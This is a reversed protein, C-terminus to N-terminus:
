ELLQTIDSFQVCKIFKYDRKKDGLGWRTGVGVGFRWLYARPGTGLSIGQGKPFESAPNSTVSCFELYLGSRGILVNEDDLREGYERVV